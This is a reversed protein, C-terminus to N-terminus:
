IWNCEERSLLHGLFEVQPKSFNCKSLKFKMNVKDIKIFFSELQTLHLNFDNPIFVLIGDIFGLIYDWQCDAFICDMVACFTAVTNILGFPMVNFEFKGSQVTFSTKKKIMKM